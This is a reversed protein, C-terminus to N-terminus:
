AINASIDAQGLAIDKYNVEMAYAETFADLKQSCLESILSDRGYLIWGEEGGVYYMIHYGFESRVLGTDGAQRSEDFIWADFSEVMYGAPVGSYLGGNTNSGGDTSHENALQAFAEETADGEAWSDLIAQAQARCAEWQADDAIIYGNEDTECDEPQILIHRVDVLKGSDKTIGYSTKFDSAHATFHAEIEEMTPDMQEYLSNFYHVGEYYVKMYAMYDDMGCGPGMDAQIMDEATEFDYNEATTQMTAPMQELATKADEPLEFGANKAEICLTQYRHWTALALNLFYQEWTTNESVYQEALPKTIDVNASGGSYELYNYVQMWYYVQLQSNTLEYEGITAVVKDAAESLETGEVIYNDKYYVDNERPIFSGGNCFWWGAAAAGLLVVAACVAAVVIKWTKKNTKEQPQPDALTEAEETLFEELVTEAAAEVPLAEENEQVTKGCIPCFNAEGDIQANCFKCNM